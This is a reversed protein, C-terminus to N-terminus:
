LEVVVKFEFLENVKSHDTKVHVKMNKFAKDCDYCFFDKGYVDGVYLAGRLPYQCHVCKVSRELSSTRRFEHKCKWRADRDIESDKVPILSRCGEDARGSGQLQYDHFWIGKLCPESVSM